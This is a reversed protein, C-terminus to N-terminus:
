GNEGGKRRLAGEVTRRVHDRHEVFSAYGPDSCPRHWIGEDDLMAEFCSCEMFNEVCALADRMKAEHAGVGSAQASLTAAPDLLAFTMAGDISVVGRGDPLPDHTLTGGKMVVCHKSGSATDGFAITFGPFTKFWSGNGDLWIPEIGRSRSWKCIERWWEPNEDGTAPDSGFIAFNPVDALPLELVSAICAQLCNGTEDGCVRAAFRDQFVARM